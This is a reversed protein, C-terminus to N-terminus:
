FKGCYNRRIIFNVIWMLRIIDDYKAYEVMNILKEHM